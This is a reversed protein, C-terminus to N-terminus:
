GPGHQGGGNEYVKGEFQFRVLSSRGGESETFKIQMDRFFYSRELRSFFEAIQEQSSGTGAIVVKRGDQEAATDFSTLWVTRPAVNTLEKFAEAWYLKQALARQVGNAAQAEQSALQRNMQAQLNHALEDRKVIEARLGRNMFWAVGKGMGGLVPMALFAIAALVAINQDSFLGPQLEIPILNMRRHQRDSANM